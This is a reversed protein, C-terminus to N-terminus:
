IEKGSNIYDEACIQLTVTYTIPVPVNRFVVFCTSPILSSNICYYLVALSPARDMEWLLERLSYNGFGIECAVPTKLM